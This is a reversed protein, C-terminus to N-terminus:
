RQGIPRAKSADRRMQNELQAKEELMRGLDSLPGLTRTNAEKRSRKELISHTSTAALREGFLKDIYDYDPFEDPLCEYAKLRGVVTAIWDAAQINQDLHSEVEFPQGALNLCPESGFMTKSACELLEKRAQHQDMVVVFQENRSAAYRDLKRLAHAFCTTHLGIPNLGDVVGLKKERGYYFTRGGLDSVKKFTRHVLRRLEPYERLTKPRIFSTGKKEWKAPMKGNARLDHQFNKKKQDLIFSAFPRVATEPLIMGALGFVPSENHKRGDRGCYPGIHGFEDLYAFLM